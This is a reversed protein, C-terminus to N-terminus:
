WEELLYIYPNAGGNLDKIRNTADLLRYWLGDGRWSDARFIGKELGDHFERFAQKAEMWEIAEPPLGEKKKANWEDVTKRAELYKTYEPSLASKEPEKKKARRKRPTTAGREARGGDAQRPQQIYSFVDLQQAVSKM